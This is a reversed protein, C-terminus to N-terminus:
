LGMVHSTFSEYYAQSSGATNFVLATMNAASQPQSLIAYAASQEGSYTPRLSGSSTANYGAPSQQAAALVVSPADIKYTTSTTRSFSLSPGAGIGGFAYVALLAVLVVAVAWAVTSKRVRGARPGGDAPGKGPGPAPVTM